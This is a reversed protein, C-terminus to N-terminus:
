RYKTKSSNIRVIPSGRDTRCQVHLDYDHWLTLSLGSFSQLHQTPKTWHHAAHAATASDWLSVAYVPSVVYCYLKSYDIPEATCYVSTSVGASIGSVTSNDATNRCALSRQGSLRWLVSMNVAALSPTHKAATLQNETQLIAWFTASLHQFIKLVPVRGLLFYDVLNQPYYPDLVPYPVSM